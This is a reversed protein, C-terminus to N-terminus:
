SASILLRGEASRARRKAIAGPNGGTIVISTNGLGARQCSASCRRPPRRTCACAAMRRSVASARSTTRATSRTARTSSSRTRCRRATTSPRSGAARSGSRASTGADAHRLRRARDLGAVFLRPTRRGAVTMRQASKDIRVQVAADATFASFLFGAAFLSCSPLAACSRSM